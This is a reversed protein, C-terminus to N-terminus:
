TCLIISQGVSQSVSQSVSHINKKTNVLHIVMLLNEIIDMRQMNKPFFNKKKKRRTKDKRIKTVTTKSKKEM